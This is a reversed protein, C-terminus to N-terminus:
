KCNVCGSLEKIFAEHQTDYLEAGWRKIVNCTTPDVVLITPFGIVNYEKNCCVPHNAEAGNVKLPVCKCIAEIVAQEKFLTDDIAHCISCYPAGVNIFLMKNEAKARDIAAQYDCEWFSHAVFDPKTVSQYAKFFLQVSFALLTIGLINKIIRMDPTTASRATYLYYAGNSIVLSALLWSIAAAPLLSKLFYLCMGLLLFGFFHKIEVMWMGAQPLMSLSSSFTGIILLPISLGIGFTFLLIFGFYPNGITTTLSLLMLLAPSSCPSAVIGSAAGFFFASLFSGGNSSSLMNSSLAKPMRMQVIDFMSLALYILMLVIGIIVFPNAMISGFIMGTYASILGLSAFTTAIGMTYSLGTFFNHLVSQKARGQLIGVTIPIMPYICPTFSVLIGLLLVLLLRMALSDTTEVLSKIRDSFGLKKEEPVANTDILTQLDPAEFSELSGEAVINEPATILFLEERITKHESSYYACHLHARTPFLASTKKARATIRFDKTFVKKNEKFAEDYQTTPECDTQWSILEIDPSDVSLKLYDYYTVTNAPVAFDIQVECLDEHHKITHTIQTNTLQTMFLMMFCANLYNKM